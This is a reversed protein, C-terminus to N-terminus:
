NQFFLGPLTYLPIHKHGIDVYPQSAGLKAMTGLVQLLGRSQDFDVDTEEPEKWIEEQKTLHVPEERENVQDILHDWPNVLASKTAIETAPPGSASQNRKQPFITVRSDDIEEAEHAPVIAAAAAEAVPQLHPLDDTGAIEIVIEDKDIVFDM